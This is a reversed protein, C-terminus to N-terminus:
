MLCRTEEFTDDCNQAIDNYCDRNKSLVLATYVKRRVNPVANGRNNPSSKPYSPDDNSFSEVTEGLIYLDCSNLLYECEQVVNSMEMIKLAQTGKPVILRFAVMGNDSAFSSGFTLSSSLFGSESIQKGAVDENISAINNRVYYYDVGRFLVINEKLTRKLAHDLIKLLARGNIIEELNDLLAAFEDYVIDLDNQTLYGFMRDRSNKHMSYTVVFNIADLIKKEDFEFGRYISHSKINEFCKQKLDQVIKAFGDPTRKVELLPTFIDNSYMNIACVQGYYLNQKKLYEQGKSLGIKLRPNKLVDQNFDKLNKSYKYTTALLNFFRNLQAGKNLEARADDESYSHIDCLMANIQSQNFGQEALIRKAVEKQEDPLTYNEM